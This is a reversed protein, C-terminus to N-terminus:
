RYMGYAFKANSTYPLLFFSNKLKLVLSNIFVTHRLPSLIGGQNIRCRLSYWESYLGNVHVCLRFNMYFRYLIYWTNGRIDLEHLQFFLGGIWVTDLAKAVDFFAM